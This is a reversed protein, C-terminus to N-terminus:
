AVAIGIAVIAILIIIAVTSGGGTDSLQLSSGTLLLSTVVVFIQVVFGGVSTLVGSGVATAVPVGQQTFFRATIAAVGITSPLASVTSCSPRARITRRVPATM